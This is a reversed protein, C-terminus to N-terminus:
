DIVKLITYSDNDFNSCIDNATWKNPCDFAKSIDNTFTIGNWGISEFFGKGNVFIIM